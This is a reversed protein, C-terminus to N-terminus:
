SPENWILTNKWEDRLQPEHHVLEKKKKTRAVKM